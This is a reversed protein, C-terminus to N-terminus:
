VLGGGSFGWRKNSKKLVEKFYENDICNRKSRNKKSELHELNWPVHLGCVDKGQLPYIHNVEHQKPCTSYLEEIQRRHEDTQWSPTANLKKARYNAGKLNCRQKNRQAWEKTWRATIGEPLYDRYRKIAAQRKEKNLTIMRRIHRSMGRWARIEKRLYQKPTTLFM